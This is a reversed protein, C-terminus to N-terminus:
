FEFRKDVFSVYHSLQKNDVQLKIADAFKKIYVKGIAEKENSSFSGKKSEVKYEVLSNLTLLTNPFDFLIKKSETDQKMISIVDRARGERMQLQIISSKFKQNIAAMFRDISKPELESLSEPIFIYLLPQRDESLVQTIVPEVFNNVYGYALAYAISYEEEEIAKSYESMLGTVAGSILGFIVTIPEPEFPPNKVFAWVFAAVLTCVWLTLLTIRSLLRIM